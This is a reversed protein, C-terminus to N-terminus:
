RGAISVNDCIYDNEQNTIFDSATGPPDLDPSGAKRFRELLASM